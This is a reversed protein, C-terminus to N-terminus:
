GKKDENLGVDLYLYKSDYSPYTIRLEEVLTGLRSVLKQRYGGEAKRIRSSTTAIRWLLLQQNRKEEPTLKPTSAIPNGELLNALRAELKAKYTGDAKKLKFKITAINLKLRHRLLRQEGSLQPKPTFPILAKRRNTLWCQVHWYFSQHTGVSYGRIVEDGLELVVKCTPESCVRRTKNWRLDIQM